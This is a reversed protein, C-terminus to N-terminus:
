IFSVRDKRDPVPYADPSAYSLPLKWQPLRKWQMSLDGASEQNGPESLGPNLGGAVDLRDVKPPPSCEIILKHTLTLILFPLFSHSLEWFVSGTTRRKDLGASAIM